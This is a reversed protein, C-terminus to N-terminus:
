GGLTFQYEETPSASGDNTLGILQIQYTGRGLIERPLRLRITKGDGDEVRLDPITYTKSDRIRRVVAEYSRYEGPRIWRLRLELFPADARPKLEAPSAGGRLTVPTLTAVDNGQQVDRLSSPSNLRALEQELAFHRQQERWRNFGVIALVITLVFVAILPLVLVPRGRLTERLRRWVSVASETRDAAGVAQRANPPLQTSERVAWDKISRNIRLKRQQEPTQAYRLVFRERDETGLSDELYDEILDQEASLVRERIEADTLFLSEIQERVEDDVKGLLFQRLLADNLADEKM